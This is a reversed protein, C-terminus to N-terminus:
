YQAEPPPVAELHLPFHGNSSPNKAPVVQVTLPLAGWEVLKFLQVLVDAAGCAFTGVEGTSEDLADFIAYVQVGGDFRSKNFHVETIHLPRYVYERASKVEQPALLQDVSTAALRRQAIKLAIADPDDVVLENITSVYRELEAGTVDTYPEVDGVVETEDGTADEAAGGLAAVAEAETLNDKAM